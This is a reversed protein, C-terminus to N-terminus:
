LLTHWIPMSPLHHSLRAFSVQSTEEVAADRSGGLVFHVKHVDLLEEM